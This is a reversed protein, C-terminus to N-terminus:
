DILLKREVHSDQNSFRVIYAGIVIEEIRITPSWEGEQILKGELNYLQFQDFEFGSETFLCNNRYWINIDDLPKNSSLGQGGDVRSIVVTTGTNFVKRVGFADTITDQNNVFPHMFSIFMYNYDPTFTIGTPEGGAPTRAFIEIKPNQMTHYSRVLWVFFEGGDQCVYLNGQDDFALNDHQTGWNVTSVGNAHQIQYAQSEVYVELDNVNPNNGTLRYVRGTFKSTFYVKGDPGIECDEIGEFNTANHDRSFHQVRNCDAPTNNAVQFWNGNAGNVSDAVLVYLTGSSLDQPQDCVFKYLFGWNADDAGFFAISDNYFCVNEHLMKGCKWVKDPRNDNDYDVIEGVVPDYEVLWGIDHYDNADTDLVNTDEEAIVITGWNTLGGSCPRSTGGVDSFDLYSHGNVAWYGTDLSIPIMSVGANANNLEHNLGIIGDQSSGALPFYCTYDPWAKLINGSITDGAQFMFQFKHTTPLVLTQNAPQADLSVFNSFQAQVNIAILALILALIKM